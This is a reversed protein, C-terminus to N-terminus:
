EGDAGEIVGGPNIAEASGLLERLTTRVRHVRSRVTGQPIGMVEAAEAYSLEGVVVVLFTERDFVPISSLAAVLAPAQEDAALADLGPEPESSNLAISVPWHRRRVDEHRLHSRILNNAIGILWPRASSFREADFRRRQAFAQVFTESAIEEGDAFGVRRQCYRRVVDYHRDFVVEFAELRRLSKWILQGDTEAAM